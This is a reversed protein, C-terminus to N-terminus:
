QSKGLKGIDKFWGKKVEAIRNGRLVLAKLELLERFADEDVDTVGCQVISIGLIKTGFKQFAEKEIKPLKSESFVINVLKTSNLPLRDLDKRYDKSRLCTYVDNEGPTTLGRDLFCGAEATILAGSLLTLAVILVSTLNLM